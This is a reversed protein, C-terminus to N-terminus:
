GPCTTGRVSTDFTDLATSAEGAAEVARGLARLAALGPEAATWDIFREAATGYALLMANAAAHADAYCDAPPNDLLWDREADVFDLIDVAAVRVAPLDQADTATALARNLREVTARDDDVRRLFGAYALRPHGSAPPSGTSAIATATASTASATSIPTATATPAPTLITTAVPSGVPTTGSTGPGRSAEVAGAGADRLRGTAAIMVVGVLM